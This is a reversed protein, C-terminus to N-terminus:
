WYAWFEIMVWKGKYDALTIDKRVNRAATINWAPPPKGYHKALNTPLLSLTGLDLEREEKRLLVGMTVKKVDKASFSLDYEGPPAWFSFASGASVFSGIAIRARKDTLYLYRTKDKVQTEPLEVQGHLHVLPGLTLLYDAQIKKKEFIVTGGRHKQLDLAFIAVAPRRAYLTGAFRGDEDTVLKTGPKAVVGSRWRPRVSDGGFNWGTGLEVGAVPRGKADVVRGRIEYLDKSQAAWLPGPLLLLAWLSLARRM